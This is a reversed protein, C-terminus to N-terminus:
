PVHSDLTEGYVADRVSTSRWSVAVAASPMVVTTAAPSVPEDAHARPTLGECSVEDSLFGCTEHGALEGHTSATPPVFRVSSAPLPMAEVPGHFSVTYGAGNLLAAPPPPPCLVNSVRGHHCGACDNALEFYRM